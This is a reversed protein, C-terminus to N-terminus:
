GFWERLKEEAMKKVVTDVYASVTGLAATLAALDDSYGVVPTIDPIADIPSIFYAIASYIVAKAWLPTSPKKASFFLQLAMGIVKRGAAKFTDKIKQWFDGETFRPNESQIKELKKAGM